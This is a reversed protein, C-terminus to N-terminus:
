GPASIACIYRTVLALDEPSIDYDAVLKLLTAELDSPIPQGQLIGAQRIVHSADRLRRGLWAIRGDRRDTAHEDDFAIILLQDARARLRDSLLQSTAIRELRCREVSLAARAKEDLPWQREIARSLAEIFEGAILPDIDGQDTGARQGTVVYLIDVGGTHLSALFAADPLREDGEYKIITQKTLGGFEAFRQQSLGLRLREEKLRM